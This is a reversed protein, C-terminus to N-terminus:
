VPSDLIDIVEQINANFFLPINSLFPPLRYPSHAKIRYYLTELGSDFSIDFFIDFSMCFFILLCVIFPGIEGGVSSRSIVSFCIVVRTRSLYTFRNLWVSFKRHVNSPTLTARSNALCVYFVNFGLSVPRYISSSQLYLHLMLIQLYM